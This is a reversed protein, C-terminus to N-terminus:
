GALLVVESPVTASTYPRVGRGGRLALRLTVDSAATDDGRDHRATKGREAATMARKARLRRVFADPAVCATSPKRSKWLKSRKRRASWFKAFRRSRRPTM